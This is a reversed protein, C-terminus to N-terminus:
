MRHSIMIISDIVSKVDDEDRIKFLHDAEGEVPATVNSEANQRALVEEFDSASRLINKSRSSTAVREELVQDPLDFDVLISTFGKNHFSDLLKLRGNRSRNSNCIILHCDAENVAYDVITKTITYKFSNPGTEPLLRRYYAHIFEAHNDQDIVVSHQLQEELRNAFTSKGSHTKGVTIIVLRNM